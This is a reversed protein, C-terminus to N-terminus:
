AGETELQGGAKPRSDEDGSLREHLDTAPTDACADDFTLDDLGIAAAATVTGDLGVFGYAAEGHETQDIGAAEASESVRLGVLRDVGFAIAWTLGGAFVITVLVSLAQVGAQQAVTWSGGAAVAAEEMWSDRVFFSLLIAGVIAAVGHIGFVDLTDDFRLRDKLRLAFYSAAAAAAALFMAGMPKVVGAAPTIAVLGTLVGSAFGLTSVRGRHAFEICMWAVAGASAAVQTVTLARATQLDSAVARGANFGFWGVWLLGAGLLTLVLNNPATSGGDLEPRRAGIFMALVLGSIGASIHVVTGGAFDITGAPGLEHLFGDPAWVWHCLPCYVVLAWIVIFLCYGSFRVREAFAGAILAPTIIAFKGQFMAFVYEPVGEAMITDDIADLFVLGSDWGVFGGLTNPGFALAYGCAIWLLGILAMSAFSHMMTGLVNKTRVLGGYFLALGPVMLLVLATSTLMWATTGSDLSAPEPM